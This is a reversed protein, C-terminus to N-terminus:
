LKKGERYRMIIKKNAEDVEINFLLDHNLDPKRALVKAFEMEKIVEYNSYEKLYGEIENEDILKVHRGKKTIEVVM